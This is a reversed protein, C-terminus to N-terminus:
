LNRVSGRVLSTRQGIGLDESPNDPAVGEQEQSQRSSINRRRYVFRFASSRGTGIRGSQAKRIVKGTSLRSDKKEREKEEKRKM